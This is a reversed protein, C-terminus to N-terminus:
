AAGKLQLSPNRFARESQTSVAAHPLRLRVTTGEGLKSELLMEGDHMRAFAKVVAVGAVVQLNRRACLPPYHM